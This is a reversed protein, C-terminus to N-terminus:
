ALLSAAGPGCNFLADLIGLGPIFPGHLQPYEPSQFRTYELAVGRDEFLREDNYRRAGSGSLYTTAGFRSCIELIRLNKDRAEISLSSSLVIPTQIALYGCVARLGAENLAALRPPAVGLVGELLAFVEPFFPCKAYSFRATQLHKKVWDRQYDIAMDRILGSPAKTVPVSLFLPGSSTKVRTRNTVSTANGYQYDVDDLLVFVDSKTIKHFYGAWPFYNPQHIAIRKM